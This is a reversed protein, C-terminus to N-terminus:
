APRWRGHVLDYVETDDHLSITARRGFDSGGAAVWCAAFWPILAKGALTYSDADENASLFEEEVSDDYVRAIDLLGPDVPCPYRAEGREFLFFESNSEDMFYARVPFGSTFGDPFVEFVVAVVEPPYEHNVLQRLVPVLAGTHLELAMAVRHQFEAETM